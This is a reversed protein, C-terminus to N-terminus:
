IEPVDIGYPTQYAEIAYLLGFVIFACAGLLSIHKVSIKTSLYRGGMVAMLTCLSHGLITGFAVVPISQPPTDTPLM